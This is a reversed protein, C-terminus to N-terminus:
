GRKLRKPIEAFKFCRLQLKVNPVNSIDGIFSFKELLCFILYILYFLMCFKLGRFYFANTTNFRLPMLAYTAKQQDEQQQSAFNSWKFNAIINSRNTLTIQKYSTRGIYTSELRLSTKDVRINVEEATGFLRTHTLEGTDYQVFLSGQHDGLSAPSFSVELQLSENEKLQGSSLALSWPEECWVRFRAERNGINRVLIVRKSPYNVPCNTFGLEDPFDLVARPGIARVPILFRERETVVVVEHNYDKHEDPQFVVRFTLSLGPSVKSSANSPAVLSFYPTEAQTVKVLRPVKDNNKLVLPLECPENAKFNQFVIESPFPQFIAEDIALETFQVFM